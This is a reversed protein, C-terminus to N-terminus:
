RKALYIAYEINDPTHHQSPWYYPSQFRYLSSDDKVLLNKLEGIPFYYGFQCLLNALHVAEVSINFLINYIERIKQDSSCKSVIVLLCATLFSTLIPRQKQLTLLYFQFTTALNVSCIPWIYPRFQFKLFCLILVIIERTIESKSYWLLVNCNSLLNPFYLSNWLYRYLM